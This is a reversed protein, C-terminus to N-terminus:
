PRAADGDVTLGPLEVRDDARAVADLDVSPLHFPLPQAVHQEVLGCSHDRRRAIRLAPRRDDLEHRVLRADDRHSPEVRVRGSREQERVVPLERVPEGMRPVADLLRVDGVDLAVRVLLRQLPQAVSHLEVVAQGGRCSCAAEAATADLEDEVLSALVLDLPHEVGDAM